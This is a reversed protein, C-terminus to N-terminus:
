NSVPCDITNKEDKEYKLTIKKTLEKEIRNLPMIMQHGDVDWADLSITVDYFNYFDTVNVLAYLNIRDLQIPDISVTITRYLFDNFDCKGLKKCIETYSRDIIEQISM